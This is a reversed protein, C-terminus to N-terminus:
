ELDIMCIPCKKSEKLWEQLCEDCFKHNCSTKRSVMKTKSCIPCDIEEFLFQSVSDIDSVGVLHDELNLLEEYNEAPPPPPLNDLPGLISEFMNLLQQSPPPINTPNFNIQENNENQEEDEDVSMEDNSEDDPPPPPPTQPPNNTSNLNNLDGVFMSFLSRAIPDNNILNVSEELNEHPEEQGQDAIAAGGSNVFRLNPFNQLNFNPPLPLLLQPPRSCIELHRQYDEFSILENCIECPILDEYDKDNFAYSCVLNHENMEEGSLEIGCKSCKM